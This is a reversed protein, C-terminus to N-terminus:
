QSIANSFNAFSLDAGSKLTRVTHICVDHSVMDPSSLILKFSFYPFGSNFDVKNFRLIYIM